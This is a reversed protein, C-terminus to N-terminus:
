VRHRWTLLDQECCVGLMNLIEIFNVLKIYNSEKILRGHKNVLFERMKMIMQSRVRLNRQMTASRLDIYRYQMRM